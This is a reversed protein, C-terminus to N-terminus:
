DKKEPTEQDYTTVTGSKRKRLAYGTHVWTRTRQNGTDGNEHHQFKDLFPGRKGNPGWAM